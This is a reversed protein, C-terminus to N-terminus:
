HKVFKNTQSKGETRLELIYVGSPLHSMDIKWYGITPAANKITFPLVVQGSINYINVSHVGEKKLAVKITLDDIVPVPYINLLKSESPVTFYESLQKMARGLNLRGGSVSESFQPKRDVSNLLIDKVLLAAKQPNTKIMSIWATNKYSYLLSIAGAVHPSAGSTGGFDGYKHSWRTSKSQAPAFLEVSEKGYGAIQQDTRSSESVGLLYQSSCTCPMDGFRDIDDDYNTTAAANLIGVSGLSDYLACWIPHDEAKAWDIGWSSNTSVVFAGNQGNSENYLRRMEMIYSYGEIINSLKTIETGTHASLLMLKIDQNIGSIGKSNNGQAGIIGLISTGHNSLNGYNHRDTDFVMQWGTYDDTYGNQDDDIQNDPIEFHNHWINEKLDEHEVFFSGDVVACVITDGTITLGGTSYSWAQSVKITDLAWQTDFLSDNPNNRWEIEANNQIFLVAPNSLLQQDSQIRDEVLLLHINMHKSLVKSFEAKGNSNILEEIQEGAKLM